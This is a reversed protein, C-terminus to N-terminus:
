VDQEIKSIDAAARFPKVILDMAHTRFLLVNLLGGFFGKFLFMLPLFAFLFFLLLYLWQPLPVTAPVGKWVAFVMAAALIAFAALCHSAWVRLHPILRQRRTLEYRLTFEEFDM